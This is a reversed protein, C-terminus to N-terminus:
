RRRVAVLGMMALLMASPEPVNILPLLITQVAGTRESVRTAYPLGNIELLDQGLGWHTGIGIIVQLKAGTAPDFLYVFGPNQTMAPGGANPASVVALGKYMLVDYGFQPGNVGGQLIGIPDLEHLYEGTQTNYVFATGDGGTEPAGIVTFADDLDGSFGFSPDAATDYDAPLRLEVTPGGGTITAVATPGPAPPLNLTQAQVSTASLCAAVALLGRWMTREPFLNANCEAGVM